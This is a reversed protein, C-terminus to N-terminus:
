NASPREIHDIVVREVPVRMPELKLGLQERLAQFVDPKDEGGEASNAYDIRFQFVGELRTKDVVPLGLHLSALWRAITKSDWGKAGIKEGRLWIGDSEGPNALNASKLKSGGQAVVLVYSRTERVERHLKVQLSRELVAQLMLKCSAETIPRGATAEMDYPDGGISAWEPVSFDNLIDYAWEIALKVPTNSAVLRGGACKNFPLGSDRPSPEHPKISVADFELRAGSPTQATALQLALAGLVAAISLQM